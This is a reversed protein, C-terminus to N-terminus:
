QTVVSARVFSEVDEAQGSLVAEYIKMSPTNRSDRDRWQKILLIAQRQEPTLRSMAEHFAAQEPPSETLFWIDVKWFRDRYDRKLGFYLGTPLDEHHFQVWDQLMFGRWFGQDILECLLAKAQEKGAQPNVIHLDLDAFTMLRYRYSGTVVVAGYASLRPILESEQLLAEAERQLAAAQTEVDQALETSM